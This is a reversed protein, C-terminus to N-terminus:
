VGQMCVFFSNWSQIEGGLDPLSDVLVTKCRLVEVTARHQCRITKVQRPQITTQQRGTRAAVPNVTGKDIKGYVPEKAFRCWQLSLSWAEADEMKPDVVLDRLLHLVNCGLLM